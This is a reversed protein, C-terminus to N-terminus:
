RRVEFGTLKADAPVDTVAVDEVQAAGPGRRCWAVFTDIVEPAAEAVAEVEGSPLNRVWGQVGLRRAQEVAGARYSVGQM